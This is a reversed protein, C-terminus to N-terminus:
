ESILTDMTSIRKTGIKHLREIKGLFSYVNQSIHKDGKKNSESLFISLDLDVKM